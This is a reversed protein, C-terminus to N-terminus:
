LQYSRLSGLPKPINVIFSATFSQLYIHGFMLTMVINLVMQFSIWMYVLGNKSLFSFRHCIFYLVILVTGLIMQWFSFSQIIFFFPMICFIIWIYISLTPNKSIISYWSQM